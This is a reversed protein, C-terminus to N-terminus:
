QPPVAGTAPPAVVPTTTTPAVPPPSVPALTPAASITTTPAVPTTTVVVTPTATTPTASPTPPGSSVTLVVTTGSAVKVGAAPVSSLVTGAPVTASVVMVAAIKPQLGVHRLVNSADDSSRNVVPPVVVSTVNTSAQAPAAAGSFATVPVGALAVKFTDRWIMTPIDGGFMKAWPTNNITLNVLGGLHNPGAPDGMWVSGALDPTFGDFWAAGYSNTTGTKGAAPRGIDGNKHGTAGPDTIVHTLLETAQDAIAASMVATCRSSQVPLQLGTATDTVAALGYPVCYTGHNAVTAYAGAM